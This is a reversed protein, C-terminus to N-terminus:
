VGVHRRPVQPHDALGAAERAQRAIRGDRQPAQRLGREDARLRYLPGPTALPAVYRGAKLAAFLTTHDKSGAAVHAITKLADSTAPALVSDPDEQAATAASTGTAGTTPTGLSATPPAEKSCGFLAVLAGVLVYKNM